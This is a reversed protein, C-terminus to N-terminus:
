NQKECGLERALHHVARELEELSGDNPIYYDCFAIPGGKELKEIESFDREQAEEVTLPRIERIALRQYRRQRRSIVAVLIVEGVSANKLLTYESWSYLGDILLQGRSALDRIEPLALHAYAGMGYMERLEQRVKKENEPTEPLGRRRVEQLTFNGFYIYPLRYHSVLIKVVTSKGCGPMGVVAIIRHKDTSM